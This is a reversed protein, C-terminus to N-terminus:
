THAPVEKKGTVYEYILSRKYQELKEIKTQKITILQDIETIKNDLYNIIQEQTDKPPCLVFIRFLERTYLPSISEGVGRMSMRFESICGATKFQYEFYKPVFGEYCKYVSYNFTVIGSLSSVFFVGSHAKYKNFVIDDPEVCRWDIYSSTPNSANANEALIIGHAQTVSLPTETGTKTREKKEHMVRGIPLVSWDEPIQRAWEIGCNKMPVTPDLGKTVVETILSQKYAKLKEIQTQVNTILADVKKLQADITEVIATQENKPPIAVYTTEFGVKPLDWQGIRIGGSLRRFEDAYCKSRLLYHLYKKDFADTTFRYVYYAPSVVGEYASVGMSGQWAKMKNVVFDGVRVYRYNSTDESTVNHNDDRSDKPVIGHERYLSLIVADGPNKDPSFRLHNKIREINWDYPIKGLYGLGSDKMERM